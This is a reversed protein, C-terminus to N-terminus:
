SIILTNLYEQSRHGCPHLHRATRLDYPLRKNKYAALSNIAAAATARRHDLMRSLDGQRALRDLMDELTSVQSCTSSQRNCQIIIINARISNCIATLLGAMSRMVMLVLEVQYQVRQVM